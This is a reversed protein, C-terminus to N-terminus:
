SAIPQRQRVIASQLFPLAMGARDAALRRAVQADIVAVDGAAHTSQKAAAAVACQTEVGVVRAPQAGRERIQLPCPLCLVAKRTITRAPRLPMCVARFDMRPCTAHTTFVRAGWLPSPIGHASSQRAGPLM